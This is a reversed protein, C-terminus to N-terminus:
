ERPPTPRFRVDRAIGSQPFRVSVVLEGSRTWERFRREVAGGSDAGPVPVHRQTGPHYLRLDGIGSASVLEYAFWEGDPSWYINGGDGDFVLHVERTRGSRLDKLGIMAHQGETSFAIHRGTPSATATRFRRTEYSLGEALSSDVPLDALTVVTVTEDGTQGVVARGDPAIRVGGLRQGSSIACANLCVFWLVIPVLVVHRDDPVATV